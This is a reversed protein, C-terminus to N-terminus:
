RITAVGLPNSSCWSVTVGGSCCAQILDRDGLDIPSNGPHRREGVIAYIVPRDEPM